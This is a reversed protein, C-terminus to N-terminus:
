QTTMMMSVVALRHPHCCHGPFAHIERAGADSQNFLGSSRSFLCIRRLVSTAPMNGLLAAATRRM